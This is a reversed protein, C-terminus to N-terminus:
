ITARFLATQTLQQAAVAARQEEGPSRRFMLALLQQGTGVFVATLRDSDAAPLAEWDQTALVLRTLVAARAAQAKVALLGVGFLLDTFGDVNVSVATDSRCFRNTLLSVIACLIAASSSPGLVLGPANPQMNLCVTLLSTRGAGEIVGAHDGHASIVGLVMGIANPKRNTDPHHDDWHYGSVHSRLSRGMDMAYDSQCDPRNCRLRFDTAFANQQMM